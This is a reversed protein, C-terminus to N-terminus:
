LSKFWFTMPKPTQATDGIDRWHYQTKLAPVKKYGRKHWFDDLPEYDAPRLPHVSPREVACFCTHTFSGQELAHSERHDFFAVGVGHGRYEPLLVSEGFYFIRDPQYGQDLFPQRFERTEDAMPIGTAAGVVKDGDFALVFLSGASRAYTDIYAQEYAM